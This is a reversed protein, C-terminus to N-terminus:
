QNQPREGNETRPRENKAVDLAERLMRVWKSFVVSLEHANTVRNALRLENIGYREGPEIVIIRGVLKGTAADRLEGTLTMSPRRPSLSRTDVLDNEPAPVDLETVAPALLLVDEGPADAMRYGGEEVIVDAFEEAFIRAAEDRMRRVERDSVEPHRKRWNKVFDVTLPEVIFRKYQIFPAGPARYVGGASRSPVRALGDATIEDPGRSAACGTLAGALVVALIIAGSVRSCLIKM